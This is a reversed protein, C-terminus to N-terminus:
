QGRSRGNNGNVEMIMAFATKTTGTQDTKDTKVQRGNGSFFYNWPAVNVALILSKVCCM